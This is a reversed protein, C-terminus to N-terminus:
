RGPTRLARMTEPTPTDPPLPYVRVTFRDDAMTVAALRDGAVSVSSVAGASEPMQVVEGTTVRIAVAGRDAWGTLWGRVVNQNSYFRGDLWGIGEVNGTRGAIQVIHTRTGDYVSCVLGGASLVDAMCDVDLRSEGFTRRGSDSVTTFRSVQNFPEVLGGTWQWPLVRALPSTDYRTEFVLMDSGASTVARAYGGFTNEAPWRMRQVGSAGLVGEVRM